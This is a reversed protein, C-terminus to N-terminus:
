VATNDLFRKDMIHQTLEGLRDYQHVVPYPKGTADVVFGDPSVYVTERGIVHHLTFIGDGNEAIRQGLLVGSQILQNHCGQDIGHEGLASEKLQTSIILMRLLYEMISRQRGMVTGSCSIPKDALQKLASGGFGTYIWNANAECDGIKVANCELFFTIPEDAIAQFPDAQFLVDRVDSLFIRNYAINKRHQNALYDYYAVHRAFQINLYSFLCQWLSVATVNQTELFEKTENDLSTVFLVIDDSYGSGRLSNVFIALDKKTYNAALGMVLNGTCGDGISACNGTVEALEKELAARTKDRPFAAAKIGGHM